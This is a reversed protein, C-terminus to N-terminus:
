QPQLCLNNKWHFDKRKIGLTCGCDEKRRGKFLETGVLIPFHLSERALTGKSCGELSLCVSCSADKVWGRAHPGAAPWRPLPQLGVLKGEEGEEKTKEWRGKGRWGMRRCGLVWCFTIIQIFDIGHNVCLLGSFGAMCNHSYNKM